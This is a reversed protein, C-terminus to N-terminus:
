SKVGSPNREGHTQQACIQKCLIHTCNPHQTNFHAMCCIIKPCSKGWYRWEMDTWTCTNVICQHNIKLLGFVHFSTPQTEAQRESTDLTHECVWSQTVTNARKMSKMDQLLAAFLINLIDTNHIYVLRQTVLFFSSAYAKKKQLQILM